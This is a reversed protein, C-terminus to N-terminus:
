PRRRPDGRSGVVVKVERAVGARWVRAALGEGIREEELFPLLEGAHAVAKGEVALLVDGLLLGAREAPSGAEVATLLLGVPQGVGPGPPLRVPVTAIGLYGRRVMGHSLIAKVVRRLTDPPVALASGRLLGGAALGLAQGRADLVLGGSFGPRLALDLELYRDLRGGAPARWEPGVRAVVGLSARAGRGPRSLGLALQGVRPAAEAWEVPSLGARSIRLVALDSSHDRGLLEAPVTDGGEVGVEIEEDRELAHSAGVVTGDTAWVVGSAPARRGADVRVVWPAARAAVEALGDSLEGLREMSMRVEGERGGLFTAAGPRRWM